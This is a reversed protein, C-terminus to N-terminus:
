RWVAKGYKKCKHNLCQRMGTPTPDGLYVMDHLEEGCSRCKAKRKNGM